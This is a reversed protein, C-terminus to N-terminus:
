SGTDASRRVDARVQVVVAATRCRVGHSVGAPVRYLDGARLVTEQDAAFFAFEGELVAGVHEQEHHHEEQEGPRLLLVVLSGANGRVVGFDLFDRQRRREPPDTARFVDISM